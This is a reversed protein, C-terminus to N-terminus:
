SLPHATGVMHIQFEALHPACLMRFMGPRIHLALQFMHLTDPLFEVCRLDCQTRIMDLLNQQFKQGTRVIGLRIM